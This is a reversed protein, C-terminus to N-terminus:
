VYFVALSFIYQVRLTFELSICRLDRKTRHIRARSMLLHFCKLFSVTNKKEGNM